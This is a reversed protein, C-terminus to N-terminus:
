KELYLKRISQSSIGINEGIKNYTYGEKRALDIYEKKYKTLYRLRSGSKILNFEESSPCVKELIKDLSLSEEEGKVRKIFGETGIIDNNEYLDMLIGQDIDKEEMLEIYKEIARLRDTSLINLFDDIDVINDMNRRYFIDSSWKYEEMSDCIGAVVPNNHIYKILTVFYSDDQVLIGKYRGEFVHGTKEYKKNYYMAYRTNIQHMIKSIPINLTQVFFHYHNGMIAYALIKFDYLEKAEAIIELLHSKDVDEEFIYDKKVGRQIIHYYAGYYEIRLRNM